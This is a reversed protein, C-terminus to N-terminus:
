PMQAANPSFAFRARELPTGTEVILMLSPWQWNDNTLSLRLSSICSGDSFFM